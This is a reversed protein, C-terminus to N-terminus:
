GIINEDGTASPISTVPTVVVEPTTKTEQYGPIVSVTVSNGVPAVTRSNDSFNSSYLKSMLDSTIVKRMDKVQEYFQKWNDVVATALGRQVAEDGYFSQGQMDDVNAFLRVAKVDRIFRRHLEDVEDQLRQKQLETLATNEVGAAKYAGSKIVVVKKGEKEHKVTEDLMTLYIGISGISASPTVIVRNCQSALWFAASGCDGEVYAITPKKYNKIQKAMEELGATSGGGSDFDFVIETIDTRDEWSDLTESIESLDCCGMMKEMRSINKGIVGVVPIIGMGDEVYPSSSPCLLDHCDAKSDSDDEDWYAAKRSSKSSAKKRNPEYKDSWASVYHSLDPNSLIRNANELWARARRIEIALPKGGALAYTLENLIM